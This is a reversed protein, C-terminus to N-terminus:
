REIAQNGTAYGSRPGPAPERWYRPRDARRVSFLHVGSQDIRFRIAGSSATDLVIAGARAYRDVIDARPLGFRNDAGSSVVAWRPAVARVFEPTSSTRSGHHPVLLLDARLAQAHEHLLRAEVHQGIDGPLLLVHGGAEVRLVCSSDNRLYPLWRPPHLVRFGVGDWRWHQPGQCLGM